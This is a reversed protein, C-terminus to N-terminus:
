RGFNPHYVNANEKKTIRILATHPLEFFPIDGDPNSTVAIGHPSICGYTHGVYEYVITGKKRDEDLWHCEEKTVDRTLEYQM